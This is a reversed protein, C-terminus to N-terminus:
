LYCAMVSVVVGDVHAERILVFKGSLAVETTWAAM